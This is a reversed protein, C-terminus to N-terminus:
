KSVEIVEIQESLMNEIKEYLYRQIQQIYFSSEM